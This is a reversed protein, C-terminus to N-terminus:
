RGFHVLRRKPEWLSSISLPLKWLIGLSFLNHLNHWCPTTSDSNWKWITNYDYGYTLLNHQYCNIFKIIYTMYILILVKLYTLM